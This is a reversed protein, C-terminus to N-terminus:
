DALAASVRSLVDTLYDAAAAPTMVSHGMPYRSLSVEVGARVLREAYRVGDDRLPDFEAVVVHTRPLGSLDHHHLPSALPDSHPVDKGLYLDWSRELYEKTVEYGSGNEEISPSSQTADLAPVMLMVFRIPPGSRDRALLAVAAALNGGASPGMVALRSPDVRLEDAHDVTWLTAAYCDELPAPFRHEPAQRYDVNVIVAGLQVCMLRCPGDAAQLGAPGGGIWWGGGHLMVVVPFPGDGRPAYVRARVLGDTVDRWAGVALGDTGATTGTAPSEAGPAGGGSAGAGALVASMEQSWFEHRARTAAVSAAWEADTQGPSPWPDPLAPVPLAAATDFLAQLDAPPVPPM